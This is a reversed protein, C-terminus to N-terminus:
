EKVIKHVEGTNSRLYYVDSPLMGLSLTLKPEQNHDVQAVLEGMTNFMQLSTVGNNEGFTIVIKDNTPNPYVKMTQTITGDEIATATNMANFTPSMVAFAGTGNPYREYSMDATAVPYTVSDLIAGNTNSLILTEGNSSLKFNSHIDTELLDQDAWVILYGNAPITTGLPFYWKQLNTNDDSLFIGSMDIAANTNNYLEVWDAFQGSPDSATSANSAMLENIVVQQFSIPAAEAQLTYFEHEAREPSFIGANSNEAYVYYQILPANMPFSGGFVGDAAAGDQHAGDDYMQVYTFKDTIAYRYGVYCYTPNTIAATVTVNSNIIAATHAINSITPAVQLFETTGNLYTARGDMLWQIGPIVMGSSITTTLSNQFNAYTYFKFPDSNVATDLFAMLAQARPLYTGNSFHENNITKAHAIYMKKYMPNALINKILPRAANTSHLLPTLTQLGAANLPAGIGTMGFAGFSMNLDWIISNFRHHNDMVLYYNQGFVGAYSDLNVMVNDYGLMWIARDIDMIKDLAAPTNNLTDILNLLDAWGGNSKIEYNQYYLTSDTGLNLLASNSGGPGANAPNCKVITKNSVQFHNDIFAKNISEINTFLGYEAGNIYVQAWNALPAEMYNRLIEYSLVERIFSPDSKGNSLKVDTYGQYDANGHVYDLEIHLPNKNNNANYSSNGKYKVGVSDFVVGNIAVSTALIMGESGNKATDLMYDWNAQAFTIEIKQLTNIDYFGQSFANTVAFACLVLFSFIHKQM